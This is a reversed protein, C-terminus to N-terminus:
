TTGNYLPTLFHEGSLHLPPLSNRSAGQPLSPMLCCCPPLSRSSPVPSSTGTAVAPTPDSRSHSPSGSPQSSSCRTSVHATFSDSAATLLPRPVAPLPCGSHADQLFQPRSHPPPGPRQPASQLCFWPVHQCIPQPLSLFCPVPRSRTQAISLFASSGSRSTPSVPLLSSPCPRPSPTQRPGQKPPYALPSTGPWQLHSIPPAPLPLQSFLSVLLM